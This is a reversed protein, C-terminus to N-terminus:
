EGEKPTIQSLYVNRGSPTRLVDILFTCLLQTGDARLVPLDLEVGLAHAQGTTLHRTFGAVHAERFQPPVIAVVRRGVLDNADWGLATALSQSVGIIRNRDDAAVLGVESHSVTSSDWDSPWDDHDYLDTFREADTGAWPSPEQGNLQAIVQECAWDRLAIVEPLGPRNLMQSAVARREAEDLVDQLVAFAEGDEPSLLLEVDVTLPVAELTAPHNSPLPDRVDGRAKAAMLKQHVAASLTACAADAAALDEAMSDRDTGGLALERLLSDHRQEAALWLTSPLRTLRVQQTGSRTALQLEDILDSWDGLREPASEGGADSIVFWVTKGGGPAPITGHSQSVAAVLGMGRGTTAQEGYERQTPWAPSADCVEVRLESGCTARLVMPTHAHLVVNTVLESVALEAADVWGQQGCEVLLERLARRAKSASAPEPPLSLVREVSTESM